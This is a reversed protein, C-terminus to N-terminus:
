DRIQWLVLDIKKLDTLSNDPFTDDVRSCIKKGLASTTLADFRRVLESYVKATRSLRDATSFAPLRLGLHGLIYQDLVPKGPNITAVLKSAFSAEVRGTKEHLFRLAEDFTVESTKAKELLGFYVDCWEQNRRVRYFGKFRRQFAVNTRVDCAGFRKQIWCYKEYGPKAKLLAEEIQALSYDTNTHSEQMKRLGCALVDHLLQIRGAIKKRDTPKESEDLGGARVLAAFAEIDEPLFVPNHLLEEHCEYCFVVTKGELDWPCEEFIGERVTEKRMASRGFFREAVFHHKTAHSRGDVTPTAYKGGRNLRCGCIACTESTQDREMSTILLLKKWIM